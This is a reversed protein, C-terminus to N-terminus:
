LIGGQNRMINGTPYSKLLFVFFSGSRSSLLTLVTYNEREPFCKKATTHDDIFVVEPLQGSDEAIYRFERGMAGAGYLALIM